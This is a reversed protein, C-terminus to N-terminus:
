MDRMRRFSDDIGGAIILFGEIITAAHSHRPTPPLGTTIPVTWVNKAFEYTWLDGLSCVGDHGGFV